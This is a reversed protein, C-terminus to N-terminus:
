LVVVKQIETSALYHLEEKILYLGKENNGVWLIM